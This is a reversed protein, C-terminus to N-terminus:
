ELRFYYQLPWIQIEKMAYSLLFTTFYQILAMGFDTCNRQVFPIEHIFNEQDKYVKGIM